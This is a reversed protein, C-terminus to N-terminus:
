VGNNGAPLEFRFISGSTSRPSVWIQGGHAEIISRCISLGMGMGGSKTTFRPKFIRNLDSPDIGAGTDEVSVRVRGDGTRESKIHLVRTPASHMAEIANMMLNLIVQQLQVPNGSVPQLGDELQIELEIEHK